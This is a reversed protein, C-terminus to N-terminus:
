NDELYTWGTINKGILLELKKHYPRYFDALLKYTDNRMMRTLNHPRFSHDLLGAWSLHRAAVTIAHESNPWSTRAGTRVWSDIEFAADAVYHYMDESVFILINDRHVHTFWQKLQDYYLGRRVHNGFWWRNDGCGEWNNWNEYDPDVSKVAHACCSSYEAAMELGKCQNVIAIEFTVMQHFSDLTHNGPGYGHRDRENHFGSIARHIPDRLLFVFKHQDAPVQQAIWIPVLPHFAYSPTKDFRLTESKCQNWRSLYRTLNNSFGPETTDMTYHSWFNGEGGGSCGLGMTDIYQKLSEACGKQAGIIFYHPFKATPMTAASQDVLSGQYLLLSEKSSATFAKPHIVAGSQLSLAGQSVEESRFGHSMGIMAGCFTLVPFMIRM